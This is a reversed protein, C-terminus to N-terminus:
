MVSKAPAWRPTWGPQAILVLSGVAVSAVLVTVAILLIWSIATAGAVHAVSLWMVIDATLAAAPFSFSWFGISFPLRVYRPLLAFQVLVFLATIGAILQAGADVHGGNLAFWALGCIAPPSLFIAMTPQLGNSLPPRTSLRLILVTAIVVWFFIAIGFSAWGLGQWGVDAAVEAGILGPAVTPLFYGGHIQELSLEGELWYSILWAAFLVSGLLSCALMIRGANLSLSSLEDALLTGTAPALAAIPGQAPHRLQERLPVGVRIGHVAHATILVLWTGAAIVWLSWSIARPLGLVPTAVSWCYALGCLGFGAGLTGLPLREANSEVELVATSM